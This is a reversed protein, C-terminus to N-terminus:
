LPILLLFSLTLLAIICIPVFHFRVLRFPPVDVAEAVAIMVISIPTVARAIGVLLQMALMLQLPDAGFQFAAEPVIQGYAAFTATSSGTIVTSFMALLSLMV